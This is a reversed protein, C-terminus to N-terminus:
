SALARDLGGVGLTQDTQQYFFEVQRLKRNLTSPALDGRLFSAWVTAWYRPVGAFDVLVPGGLDPIVSRRMKTLM